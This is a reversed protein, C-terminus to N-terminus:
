SRTVKINSGIGSNYLAVFPLTIVRSQPNEVPVSGGNYKVNPFDFTYSGGSAADNVVVSISSATENLFKNLLTANEYYATVTGEVVALGYELQPTTASGVVFTPNLSNDISFDIGTVVAIPSGGDSISGSYADFPENGSAATPSADVSTGSQTMNQGIISFTATVMQNPRISVSMRSVACGSFLRYQTIDLARDEITLYQPTTAAVMTSGPASGFSSFFASELLDDYDGVRLDCVIDGVVNRNGHRDVRPIRDALIDNGQVRQKVLDLSHTTYPLDILNNSSRTGFSSETVYALGSRSGQAFAM